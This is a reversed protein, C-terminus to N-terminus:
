LIYINRREAHLVHADQIVLTEGIEWHKMTLRDVTTDLFVVTRMSGVVCHLFYSVWVLLFHHFLLFVLVYKCSVGSFIETLFYTKFCTKDARVFCFCGGLSILWFFEVVLLFNTCSHSNRIQTPIINNRTLDQTFDSNLFRPLIHYKLDKIPWLSEKKFYFNEM